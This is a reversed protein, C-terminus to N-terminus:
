TDWAPLRPCCGERRSRPTRTRRTTPLVRGDSQAELNGNDDFHYTAAGAPPTPCVDSVPTPTSAVHCLEDAANVAYYSVTGNVTQSTRNGNGDYSYLFSGTPGIAEKLRDVEDYKYITDGAPETLKFVLSTQQGGAPLDPNNYDYLFSTLVTGDAKRGVISSM